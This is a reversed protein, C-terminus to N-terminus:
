IKRHIPGVNAAQQWINDIYLLINHQNMVISPISSKLLQLAQGTTAPGAYM